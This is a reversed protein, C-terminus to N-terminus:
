VQIESDKMCSFTHQTAAYAQLYYAKINLKQQCSYSDKSASKEKPKVRKWSSPFFFLFLFVRFNIQFCNLANCIACSCSHCLCLGLVKHPFSTSPLLSHSKFRQHMKKPRIRTGLQPIINM